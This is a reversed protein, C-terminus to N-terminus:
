RRLDAVNATPPRHTFIGAPLDIGRKEFKHLFVPRLGTAKLSGNITGDPALKDCKTLVLYVALGGVAQERSRHRELFRLFRLFERFDDEIQSHPASADVTLILGDASLVADELASGQALAARARDAAEPSLLGTATLNHLLADM